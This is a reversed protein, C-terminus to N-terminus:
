RALMRPLIWGFFMATGFIGPTIGIASGLLYDGFRVPSLALAYNLPPAMFLVLRLLIVARLPRSELQALLRRVLPREIGEMMKSGGVTRVVAFSVCVSAIAAALGLFFGTVTGYAYVGAAVFVIGPVHILEAVCFLVVFLLYGWPGIVRLFASLEEKDSLWATLGTARGLLVLGLILAALLALRLIKDRSM